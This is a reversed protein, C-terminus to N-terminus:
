GYSRGRGRGRGTSRVRARVWVLGLEVVGGGRCKVDGRDDLLVAAHVPAGM